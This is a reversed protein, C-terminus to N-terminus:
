WEYSNGVSATRPISEGVVAYVVPLEAEFRALHADAETKWHEIQSLLYSMGGADNLNASSPSSLLRYYVERKARHYVWNRAANDLTAAPTIGVGETYGEELWVGVNNEVDATLEGPFWGTQIEGKPAILDRIQLAM